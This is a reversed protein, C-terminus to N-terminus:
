QGGGDPDKVGRPYYSLDVAEESDYQMSWKAGFLEIMRARPDPATIKVVVNADYTFGNIRHVHQQGFTFWATKTEAASM